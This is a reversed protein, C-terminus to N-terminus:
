DMEDITYIDYHALRGVRGIADTVDARALLDTRAQRLAVDGPLPAPRLVDQAWELTDGRRDLSALQDVVFSAAEDMRGERLLAELYAVPNDSRHERLYALARKAGKRDKKQLSACHRVGNSVMLGYGTVNGGARSIAQLADDPRGLSCHFAGLNLAQSVNISGDESLQSARVLEALAEDTRGLRRLAIARNNMLWVQDGIDDFAPDDSPAAAIADLARNALAIVDQHRGAKLLAYSLQSQLELDRPAAEARAQLTDVLRNTANEVNFSWADAQVYADFRKDSRLRMLETPSDIRRVAAMVAASDDRTAQEIALDYWVANQGGFRSTWNADFLTQLLVLREPSTAPLQHRLQHILAEDINPLLEPWREAFEIFAKASADYGRTEFELWSLRYWDDPDPSDLETANRYLTRARPSDRLQIAMWGARSMVERQEDVPMAAFQPAAIVQTFIRDADAYHNGRALEYASALQQRFVQAQPDARVATIAAAPAADQQAGGAHLTSASLTLTVALALATHAFM